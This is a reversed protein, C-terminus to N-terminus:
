RYYIFHIGEPIMKVGRFKEGVTWSLYDIGFESGTPFNILIFIAGKEFLIKAQEQDM